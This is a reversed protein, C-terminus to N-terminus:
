SNLLGAVIAICGISGLILLAIGLVLMDKVEM